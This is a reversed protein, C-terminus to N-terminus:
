LNYTSICIIFVCMGDKRTVTYGHEPYLVFTVNVGILPTGDATLVQGRIVSVLSFFSCSLRSTLKILSASHLMSLPFILRNLWWPCFPGRTVKVQTGTTPLFWQQFSDKAMCVMIHDCAEICM